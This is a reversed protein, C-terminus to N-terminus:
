TGTLSFLLGVAAVVAAGAVLRVFWRISDRIESVDKEVVGVMSRILASETALAHQIGNATDYVVELTVIRREHSRGEAELNAISIDQDKQTPKDADHTSTM